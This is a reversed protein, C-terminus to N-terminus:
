LLAFYLAVVPEKLVVKVPREDTNRQKEDRDSSASMCSCAEVIHPRTRAAGTM